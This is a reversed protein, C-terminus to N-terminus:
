CPIWYAIVAVEAITLIRNPTITCLSTSIVWGEEKDSPYKHFVLIFEINKINLVTNRGKNIYASINPKLAVVYTDNMVIIELSM